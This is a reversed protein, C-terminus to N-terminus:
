LGRSLTASGEIAYTFRMNAKLDPIQKALSGDPAFEVAGFVMPGEDTLKVFNKAFADHWDVLDDIVKDGYIPDVLAVHAAAYLQRQQDIVAPGNTNPQFSADLQTPPLGAFKERYMRKLEISKDVYSQVKATIKVFADELVGEIDREELTSEKLRPPNAIRDLLTALKM